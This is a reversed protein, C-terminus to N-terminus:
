CVNIAVGCDNDGCDGPPVNQCIVNNKWIIPIGGFHEKYADLFNVKSEEKIKYKSTAPEHHIYYGFTKSCFEVYQKTFLIFTHWVVDVSKSTMAMLKNPHLLILILFKKFEKVAEDIENQPILDDLVGM